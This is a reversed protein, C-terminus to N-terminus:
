LVRIVHSRRVAFQKQRRAAPRQAQKSGDAPQAGDMLAKGVRDFLCAKVKVSLM